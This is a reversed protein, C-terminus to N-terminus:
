GEEDDEGIKFGVTHKYNLYPYFFLDCPQRATMFFSICAWEFHLKRTNFSDWTNNDDVGLRIWQVVVKKIGEVVPCASHETYGDDMIKDDSGIYQFFAAYGQTPEIHIGAKRFNTAGGKLPITCYMVMTAVRQGFKHPLGDCDGDCHPLYRDPETDNVGRGFYQISMLDEQGNEKFGLKTVHNAYDYVRRSLTAIPDGEEEKNWSVKIAAQMAKRNPSVTSGGKGDAVAAKHLLPKAAEEMAQCEEDTIFDAIIHIKSRPREHLVGVDYVKEKNTWMENRIAPSTPLNFDSCTYTEFTDVANSLAVSQFSLTDKTDLLLHTMNAEICSTYESMVNSAVAADITSSLSMKDLTAKAQDRCLSRPEPPRMNDAFTRRSPIRVYTLEEPAQQEEENSDYEISFSSTIRFALL